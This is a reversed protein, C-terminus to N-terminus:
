GVGEESADGKKPSSKVLVKGSRMSPRDRPALDSDASGWEPPRRCPRHASGLSSAFSAPPDALLGPVVAGARTAEGVLAKEVRGRLSLSKKLTRLSTGM